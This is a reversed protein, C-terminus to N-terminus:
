VNRCKFPATMLQVGHLNFFSPLYGIYSDVYFSRYTFSLIKLFEIYIGIKKKKIPSRLCFYAINSVVTGMDSSDLVKGSQVTAGISWIAVTQQKRYLQQGGM